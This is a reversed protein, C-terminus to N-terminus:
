DSAAEYAVEPQVWSRPRIVGDIFDPLLQFWNRAQSRMIVAPCRTLAADVIRREEDRLDGQATLYLSEKIDAYPPFGYSDECNALLIDVAEEHNLRLERPEGREIVVIGTLSARSAIKVHPVLRQVHYKPPPIVWQVLSNVTAMPLNFRTLLLGFTRGSKSHLRSQFFLAFREGM